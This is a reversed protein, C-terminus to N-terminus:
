QASFQSKTSKVRKLDICLSNRNMKDDLVMASSFPRNFEKEKKEGRNRRSPMGDPLSLLTDKKVRGDLQAASRKLKKLKMQKNFKEREQLEKRAREIDRFRFNDEYHENLEIEFMNNFLKDEVGSQAIRSGPKLYSAKNINYPM